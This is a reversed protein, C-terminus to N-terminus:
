AWGYPIPNAYFRVPIQPLGEQLLCAFRELGLNESISHGTEIFAVGADAMYRLAYDDSEGGILLDAGRQILREVFGINVFLAMGGWPLGIRSVPRELEGVVRVQPVGLAAKARRVWEGLPAPEVLFIREYGEGEGEAPLGLAERFAEFVLWRDLSGHLRLVTLSGELIERLRRRNVTWTLATQPFGQLGEYPLFPDEHCIVLTCGEQRARQLADCTAMFCVLIGQVEAQPDGVRVGEDANLQPVYRRVWALVDSVRM